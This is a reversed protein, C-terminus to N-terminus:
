SANLLEVLRIPKGDDKSHVDSAGEIRQSKELERLQNISFPGKETGDIEVYYEAKDQRAFEEDKRKEEDSRTLQFATGYAAVMLISGATGLTHYDFRLGLIANAGRQKAEAQLNNLATNRADNFVNEYGTNRGGTVDLINSALDRIFNTGFVVQTAVIGCNAIVRKGDISDTTSCLM